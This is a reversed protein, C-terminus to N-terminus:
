RLKAADMFSDAVVDPIGPSIAFGMGGMSVKDSFQTKLEQEMKSEWETFGVSFRPLCDKALTCQWLGADLDERGAGIHRQLANKVQRIAEENDPIIAKGNNDNFLYGGVMATFKTYKKNTVLTDVETSAESAINDLPKLNTEIISDFIVGLIKEPNNNSQPVLYGFSHYKKPIIDKNPLYFNVLLVSNSKLTSLEKSIASYNKSLIESIKNPAVGFRIHDFDNEKKGDKGELTLKGTSQNLDIATIAKTVLKVNPLKSIGERFTKPFTELGGILGLMPFQKLNNKLSLVYNADKKLLTQYSKLIPSLQTEKQHFFQALAGKLSYGYKREKYFTKGVVKKASLTAVDDAYIGRYLASIINASIYPNGYRRSIISEVSEDAASKSPKRWFEGLVGTIMGKSLPTSLFKLFTRISNPAEVLRDNPDLIFKRNAPSSTEISKVKSGQGLDIMTDVILLTGDSVGRLTRPGRELMVPKGNKDHTKWSNIWGGTRKDAEFLTISVDPRMKSLFYTFTLGSIGGGIVGVKANSPLKTLQQLM